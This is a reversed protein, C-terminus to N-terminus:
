NTSSRRVYEEAIFVNRPEAADKLRAARVPVYDRQLIDLFPAILADNDQRHIYWVRPADSLFDEFARLNDDNAHYVMNVIPDGPYNIASGGIHFMDHKSIGENDALYQMTTLTSQIQDNLHTVVRDGPEYEVFAATQRYPVNPAYSRFDQMAPVAILMVLALQAQWPLRRLAYAAFIALGPLIGIMNRPTFTKIQYNLLLALFLMVGPTILTILVPQLAPWRWITQPPPATHRARWAAWLGRLEHYAIGLALLGGSLLLFQGLAAPKIQMLDHLRQLTDRNTLMAYSKGSTRLWSNLLPLIWATLSFGILAFLGVARLYVGPRWRVLVVLVVGQAAVAYGAYYHTQFGLVGCMVFIAAYTFNRHQVWRAFAWMMGVTFLVLAAYPRLEHMHFQAFNITGLIFVAYLGVRHDFLDRALRYVLALAILTCLTAFHRAAPESGGVLKVWAAATVRWGAPHVGNIAMWQATESLTLVNAGHVTFVEDQRFNRDHFHAMHLAIIGLMVSAVVPLGIWQNSM